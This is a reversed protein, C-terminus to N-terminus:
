YEIKKQFEKRWSEINELKEKETMLRQGKKTRIPPTYQIFHMISEKLIQNMSVGNQACSDKFMKYFQNLVRVSIVNQKTNM